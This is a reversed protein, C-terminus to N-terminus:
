VRNLQRWMTKDWLEKNDAANADVPEAAGRQVWKRLQDMVQRKENSKGLKERVELLQEYSFELPLSDLLGKPGKKVKKGLLGDFVPMEEVKRIAEGFFQMKCWLDYHLSWRIFKETKEDWQGGSAVFLVM